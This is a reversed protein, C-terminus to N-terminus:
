ASLDAIVVTMAESQSFSPLRLVDLDLNYSSFFYAATEINETAGFRKSTTHTTSREEFSRKVNQHRICTKLAGHTACKLKFFTPREETICTFGVYVLARKIPCKSNM